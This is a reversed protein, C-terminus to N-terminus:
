RMKGSKREDYNKLLNQCSSILILSVKSFEKVKGFRMLPVPFNVSDGEKPRSCLM